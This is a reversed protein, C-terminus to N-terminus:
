NQHHGGSQKYGSYKPNDIAVQRQTIDKLCHLLAPDESDIAGSKIAECLKENLLELSANETEQLLAQLQKVAIENLEAGQEFERAVISLINCAVRLHFASHKSLQPSVDNILFEKVASLLTTASPNSM